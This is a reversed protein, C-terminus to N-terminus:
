FRSADDAGAVYVRYHHYQLGRQKKGFAVKFNRQRGPPLTEWSSDDTSDVLRGAHDFYDVQINVHEWPIASVNRITGMVSPRGEEDHSAHHSVIKMADPYQWYKRERFAVRDMLLPMLAVLGVWLALGLPAWLFVRKLPFRRKVWERCHHCKVADPPIDQQCYPCTKAQM